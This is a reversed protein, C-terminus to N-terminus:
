ELLNDIDSLDVDFYDAIVRIAATIAISGILINFADSNFLTDPQENNISLIVKEMSNFKDEIKNLKKKLEIEEETLEIEENKNFKLLILNSNKSNKKDDNNNM